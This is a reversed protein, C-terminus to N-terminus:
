KIFILAHLLWTMKSSYVLFSSKRDM